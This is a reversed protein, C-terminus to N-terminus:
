HTFQLKISFVRRFDVLAVSFLFRLGQVYKM